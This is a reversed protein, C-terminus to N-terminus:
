ALVRFVIALALGLSGVSLFAVTLRDVAKTLNALAANQEAERVELTDVRKDNSDVRTEIRDMRTVTADFLRTSIAESM